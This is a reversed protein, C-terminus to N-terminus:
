RPAEAAAVFERVFREQDSAQVAARILGVAQRVAEEIVENQLAARGAALEHAALLHADGRIREASERGATLIEDRQREATARLDARMRERLAPLDAVDRALETRLAEADARARVGAALGDRIRETRLRFFERIPGGLFRELLWCFILFNIVAALDTVGPYHAAGHEAVGHEM